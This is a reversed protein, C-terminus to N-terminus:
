KWNKPGVVIVFEGLPDEGLADKLGGATGRYVTEFKKTLERAVVLPRGPTEEAGFAASLEELAKLIRYKSEYFVVTEGTRALESFFTKRGKKHPAFGLYRYQEAPFGSISLAAVAANAGPVPTVAAGPIERLLEQVFKGGPDNIGPTGADSVLAIDNGARIEQLARELAAHGSHQHYPVLPVRIGHADFLKVTVRTDEAFVLSVSRLVDLARLSIDQLNGIPTAVVYLTGVSM